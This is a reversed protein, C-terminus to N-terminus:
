NRDKGNKLIEEKILQSIVDFYFFEFSILFWWWCMFGWNITFISFLLPFICLRKLKKLHEIKEKDMTGMIEKFRIIIPDVENIMYIAMFFFIITIITEEFTFLGERLSWYITMSVLLNRLFSIFTTITKQKM